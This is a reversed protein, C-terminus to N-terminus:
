FLVRSVNKSKVTRLIIYSQKDSSAQIFYPLRLTWANINIKLRICLVFKFIGFTYDSDTFRHRVSLVIALLYLVFLSRCFMVCFVSSRAFSVWFWGGYPCTILSMFYFFVFFFFFEHLEVSILNFHKWFYLFLSLSSCKSIKIIIWFIVCNFFLIFLFFTFTLIHYKNGM